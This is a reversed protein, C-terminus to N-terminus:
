WLGATVDRVIIRTRSDVAENPMVKSFRPYVEVAEFHVRRVTQKQRVPFRALLWEPFVDQKFHQWWTAPQSFCVEETREKLSEAAFYTWLMGVWDASQIDSHLDFRMSEAAFAGFREIVVVKIPKLVLDSM